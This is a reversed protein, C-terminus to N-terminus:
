FINLLPLLEFFVAVLPQRLENEHVATAGWQM